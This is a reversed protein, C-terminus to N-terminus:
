VFEIFDMHMNADQRTDYEFQSFALLCTELGNDSSTCPYSAIIAGYHTTVASWGDFILAFQAPFLESIKKEVLSALRLM